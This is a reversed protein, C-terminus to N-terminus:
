WLIIMGSTIFEPLTSVQLFNVMQPIKLFVYVHILTPTTDTKFVEGSEVITYWFCHITFIRPISDVWRLLAFLLGAM